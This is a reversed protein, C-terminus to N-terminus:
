VPSGRLREPDRQRERPKEPDKQIDRAGEPHTESSLIRTIVFLHPLTSRVGSERYHSLGLTNKHTDRPNIDYNPAFCKGGVQRSPPGEPMKPPDEQSAKKKAKM